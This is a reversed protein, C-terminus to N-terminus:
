SGRSGSLFSKANLNFSAQRDETQKIEKELACNFSANLNANQM